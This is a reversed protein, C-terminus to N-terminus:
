QKVAWLKDIIKFGASELWGDIKTSYDFHHPAPAFDDHHYFRTGSKMGAGLVQIFFELDEIHELTDITIVLDFQSLEPMVTTFKTHLNCKERRFNAFKIEEENIDYGTVENGLKELIFCTTGIGCGIDLIKANTIQRLPTVRIEQRESQLNWYASGFVFDVNHRYYDEVSGTRTEWTDNERAISADIRDGAEEVSINFYEALDEKLNFTSEQQQDKALKEQYDIFDPIGFIHEGLHGVQIATDVYSKVGVRHAKECFSTDDGAIDRSTESVKQECFPYYQVNSKGLLPLPLEDVMKQLLQRSVGTFGWPIYQFEQIKGDLYFQTRDYGIKGSLGRGSRMCYIGAVLDYGNRLDDYLKELFEPSFVIDRDVSILYPIETKLLFNSISVCKSKNQGFGAAIEWVFNIDKPALAWRAREICRCTLNSVDSEANTMLFFNIEMLCTLSVRRM